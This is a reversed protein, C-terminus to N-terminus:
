PTVPRDEAPPHEALTARVQDYVRQRYAPRDAAVRDAALQEVLSVLESLVWGAPPEEAPGQGTLMSVLGAIEAIASDPQETVAARFGDYTPHDAVAAALTRRAAVVKRANFRGLDRYAAFQAAHFFQNVTSVRPFTPDVERYALLQPPMDETLAPKTYWLLGIREASAEIDERSGTWETPDGDFRRVLGLNVSRPSYDRGPSPDRDARLVDLNLVVQAACELQALDIAKSVSTALNGPGADADVCVVERHHATRLLEVLATNEWHGGDSVYVFLDSPDFWGLFEKFLYGLGPRPLPRPPRGADARAREQAAITAAYRPNPLWAGLRVNLFALVMSVPGIRFRGMAPSVAAGSLGVAMMTTLRPRLRPRLLDLDETTCAYRQWLGDEEVPAFMQVQRPTFTVSLAPIGYHTRVQRGTVTAAACITLPTGIGEDRGAPAPGRVELASLSPEVREDDPALDNDVYARAHVGAEGVGGVVRYTAFASRLRGRYYASLSWFEATGGLHLALLVVAVVVVAGVPRDDPATVMASLAWRCLLFLLLLAFLLGALLPAVRALPRRLLRLVAAASGLAGLAAVVDTLVGQADVPRWLLSVLFPVLGLLVALVGAVVLGGYGLFKPGLLWTPPESRGLIEVVKSALVWVLLAGLGLILWGLIPWVVRSPETVCPQDLAVDLSRDLRWTPCGIGFYWRYFWGTLQAVVWLAGLFVLVNLLLGTLVTAVVSPLRRARRPSDTEAAALADQGAGRPTRTLLYGLNGRLHREEPGPQLGASAWPSPANPALPRPVGRALSWAGAMYSGGSVSTVHGARGWGLDDYRELAQLAGLAISAARVGGGSFALGFREEGTTRSPPPATPDGSGDARDACRLVERVDRRLLLSLLGGAVYAVVVVVILWKAWAAIAIAPWAWPDSGEVADVLLLNEVVDLVGGGVTLGALGPAARRATVTRYERGTWLALLTLLVTWCFVLGLDWLVAAQLAESGYYGVWSRAAEASGALQLAAIGPGDIPGGGPDDPTARSAFFAGAATLVAALLVREWWREGLPRAGPRGKPRGRQQGGPADDAPPPAGTDQQDM